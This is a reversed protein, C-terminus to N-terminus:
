DPIKDLPPVNLEAGAYGINQNVRGLTNATIVSQPIPWLMNFPHITATNDWFNYVPASYFNNKRITRDYLWNKESINALNYGNRAEKAFIFSVRVMESHRPEEAYLERAREDFIYDITVNAANILPAQARQRVKNIDDAALGNENKWFYAEARLLYTEALRFTYWDGQGGYPQAFNPTPVFIKHYPWPFWTDTTDALSKYYQKTLPQGFNPSGVRATIIESTTESMEIWNSNARRMDPTTRWTYTNDEWIWYNYFHNTRVDGNGIGLSDGAKTDWNTARNGTADLVKWYSPAYNRMSYTGRADYWTGPAADPRDVTAYITERNQGANKNEWRHLDWIVNHYTNAADKGFRATMLAYPGTIVATAAAIAKDFSTNALYVKALLHNVAGKTVNGLKAPTEPLWQVAFELDKQLQDLIAWRSTSVYDLKPGKLEEGVWPIDGYTNVLRYYWYARFWYAESLIRNRINESSWEIDDIRSIVTNANKIFGYASNFFTLVPERIASSPTIKRWDSQRLPLALDSFSTENAIFSLDGHNEANMQKRCTVLGAEFGAEDIFVNEPTFFSLPEPKLRDKSCSSVVLLSLAAVVAYKKLNRM